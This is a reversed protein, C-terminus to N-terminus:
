NRLHGDWIALSTVLPVCPTTHDGGKEPRCSLALCTASPLMGTMPLTRLASETIDAREGRPPVEGRVQPLKGKAAVDGRICSEAVGSITGAFDPLEPAVPCVESVAGTPDDLGLADAADHAEGRGNFDRGPKWTGCLGVTCSLITDARGVLMGMACTVDMPLPADGAPEVM